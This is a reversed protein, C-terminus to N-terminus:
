NSFICVHMIVAYKHLIQTINHLTGNNESMGYSYGMAPFIHLEYFCKINQCQYPVGGFLGLPLM